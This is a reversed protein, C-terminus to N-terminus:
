SRETVGCEKGLLRFSPGMVPVLRTGTRRPGFGALTVIAVVCGDSTDVSNSGLGGGTSPCQGGSWLCCTDDVGSFSASWSQSTWSASVSSLLPHTCVRVRVCPARLPIGRIKAPIQSRSLLEQLASSLLLICCCVIVLEVKKQHKM